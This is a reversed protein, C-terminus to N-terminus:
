EFRIRPDIVVLLMDVAFNALVVALVTLLITGQIVPYDRYRVADVLLRGIGPWSFVTETVVAGGLLVGFHLGIITVIPILANRLAHKCYVISDPLGKARATRTYDQKIVELMSSRTMRAILAM